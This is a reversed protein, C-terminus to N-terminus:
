LGAGKVVLTRQTGDPRMRYLSTAEGQIANGDIYLVASGDLLWGMPYIDYRTMPATIKKAAVDAIELRSYGDDGTLAFLVKSGDPSPFLPGSSVPPNNVTLSAIVSTKSLTTDTMGLWGPVSGISDKVFFLAGGPAWAFQQAGKGNPIARLVKTSTDYVQLPATSSPDLSTTFAVRHGDPAIQPEAGATAVLSDMTGDRNVHRISYGSMASGATYALWSSDPSWSPLEVPGVLSIQTGSTTDVLVYSSAGQQAVLTKGDPSLAYDGTASAFM